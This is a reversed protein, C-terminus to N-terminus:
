CVEGTNVFAISFCRDSSVYNCIPYQKDTNQKHRDSGQSYLERGEGRSFMDRKRFVIKTGLQTLYNIKLQQGLDQM